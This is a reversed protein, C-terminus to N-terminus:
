LQGRDAEAKDLVFQEKQIIALLMKRFVISSM